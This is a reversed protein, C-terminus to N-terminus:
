DQLDCRIGRQGQALAQPADPCGHQLAIHQPYNEANGIARPKDWVASKEFYMLKALAM